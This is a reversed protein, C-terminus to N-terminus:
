EVGSKEDDAEPRAFTTGVAGPSWKCTIHGPFQEVRCQVTEPEGAGTFRKAGVAPCVRSEAQIVAPDRVGHAAQRRGVLRRRGLDALAVGM